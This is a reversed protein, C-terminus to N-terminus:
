DDGQNEFDIITRNKAFLFFIAIPLFIIGTVSIILLFTFVGAIFRANSALIYGNEFTSSNTNIPM